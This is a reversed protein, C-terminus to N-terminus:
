AAENDNILMNPIGKAIPFERGTEPCVLCGEIVDLQMLAIHAKRLFDENNAYDDPVTPPLEPLPDQLLDPQNLCQVAATVGSWDLRPLMHVVFGADFEVPQLEVKTARLLLPYGKKVGKIMASTLMNHLILKMNSIKFI